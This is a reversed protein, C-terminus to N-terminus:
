QEHSASLAALRRRLAVLNERKKADRLSRAAETFYRHRELFSVQERYWHEDSVTGFSAEFEERLDDNRTLFDDRGLVDLDADVLIEELLTTPSQPLKTAMIMNGIAEIQQSTYGFEPLAERALELGAEEHGINCRIFGIDHFLAATLLLVQDEGNLEGILGALREAAPVVDDRTHALSHYSLHCPLERALKSLAYERARHFDPRTM